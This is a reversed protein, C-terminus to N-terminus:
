VRSVRPSGRDEAAQVAQAAQAARGEIPVKGTRALRDGAARRDEAIRRVSGNRSATWQGLKNCKSARASPM